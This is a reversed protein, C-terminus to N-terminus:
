EERRPPINRRPPVWEEYPPIAKQNWPVTPAANLIRTEKIPAGMTWYTWGDVDLHLNAKKGFYAWYGNQRITAVAMRFLLPDVGDDEIPIYWHPHKPQTKAYHWLHKRTWEPFSELSLAEQLYEDLERDTM